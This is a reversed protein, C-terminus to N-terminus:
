SDSAGSTEIKHQLDVLKKDSNVKVGGADTFWAAAASNTVQVIPIGIDEQGRAGVFAPLEDKEGDGLKGKVIIVAKAGHSRALIAKTIPEGHHTAGDRLKHNSELAPAGKLIVVIKGDVNLDKYDDYKWDDATVGYGAFVVGGSADGAASFAFRIYDEKLQLRRNSKGEEVSFHNGKTLEAGTVIQFPQLFGHAGKPQLGLSAYRHVIVQQARTLGMYGDGRGEMRPATLRQIDKIFRDPRAPEITQAELALTAALLVTVASFNRFARISWSPQSPRTSVKLLKRLM